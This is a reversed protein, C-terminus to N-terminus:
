ANLLSLLRTKFQKKCLAWSWFFGHKMPFVEVSVLLILRAAVGEEETCILINCLSNILRLDAAAKNGRSNQVFGLDCWLPVVPLTRVPSWSNETRHWQWSPCSIGVTNEGNIKCLYVWFTNLLSFVQFVWWMSFIKWLIQLPYGVIKSFHFVLVKSAWGPQISSM